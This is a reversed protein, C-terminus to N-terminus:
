WGRFVNLSYELPNNQTGLSSWLVILQLLAVLDSSRLCTKCRFRRQKLHKTWPM